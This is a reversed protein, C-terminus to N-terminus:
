PVGVADASGVITDALPLYGRRGDLLTVLLRGAWPPQPDRVVPTGAPVPEEPNGASDLLRTAHVVAILDTRRDSWAAIQGPAACAGAILGLTLALGRRRRALCAYGLSLAAIALVVVGPWGCGSWALPGLRDLWTPPLAIGLARLATMPEAREPARHHAALLWSVAPGRKGAAAAAVGLDFWADWRDSQQAQRLLLPIAAQPRGLGWMQYPDDAATIGCRLLALLLCASWWRTCLTTVLIKSSPPLGPMM